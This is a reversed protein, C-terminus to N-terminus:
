RAREGLIRELGTQVRRNQNPPVRVEIVSVSPRSWGEALASMLEPGSVVTRHYLGFARCIEEFGEDDPTTFHRMVEPTVAEAVPLMEFIRGGGNHLVMVVFPQDRRSLLRLSALDHRLSVDGILLAGPRGLARAAGAAQAVLGDIGNLGRQSVVDLPEHREPVFTELHRIPLSNGLFVFGGSPVSGVLARAAEAETVPDDFEALFREVARAALRDASQWQAIWGPESQVPVEAMARLAEGPNGWLTVVPGNDPDSWRDASLVLRPVAAHRASYRLWSPSTMPRGVHVILDPTLEEAIASSRLAVDYHVVRGGEDEGLGYCAQSSAEAIWPARISRAFAAAGRGEAKSPLAVPGCAVVPRRAVSLLEAARGLGARSPRVEPVFAQPMPRALLADVEGALARDAETTSGSPELPKRARLNLQVAGPVPYRTSAVAQITRRLVGRLAASHSDPLGLEFFGVAHHGYLRIQDTTQPADADQLEHPRDATVVVLPVGSARAEMVAPLDHGGATGSTRVLATPRGTVRSQGLAFYAAAREDVVDVISLNAQEALACVLPTSRSGPSVIVCRVGAQSLGAAVLRCWQTLLSRPAM